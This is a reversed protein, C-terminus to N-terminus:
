FTGLGCAANTDIRLWAYASDNTMGCYCVLTAAGDNSDDVVVMAGKRSAGDCAFPPAPAAATNLPLRLFDGAAFDVDIGNAVTTFTGLTITTSSLSLKASGNTTWNCTDNATCEIFSTGDDDLRLEQNLGLTLNGDTLTLGGTLAGGSIPLYANVGTFPGVSLQHSYPGAHAAGAALLVALAAVGRM